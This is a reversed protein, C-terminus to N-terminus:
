HASLFVETYRKVQARIYQGIKSLAMARLHFPNSFPNNCGVADMVHIQVLGVM